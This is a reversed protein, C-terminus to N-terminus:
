CSSGIQRCVEGVWPGPGANNVARVYYNGASGDPEAGSNQVGTTCCPVTNGPVCADCTNGFTFELDTNPLYTAYVTQHVLDNSTEYYLIPGNPQSPPPLWYIYVLGISSSTNLATITCGSPASGSYFPTIPMNGGPTSSLGAKNVARAELYWSQTAPVPVSALVETSSGLPQPINDLILYTSSSGSISTTSTAPGGWVQYVITNLDTCGSAYGADDCISIATWSLQITGAVAVNQSRGFSKPVSPSGVTWGRPAATISSWNSLIGEGMNNVGAVQFKYQHGDQMFVQGNSTFDNAFEITAIGSAVGYGNYYTGSSWSYSNPTTLDMLVGSYSIIDQGMSSPVPWQFTLKAPNFSSAIITPAVITAPVGASTVAITPSKPGEGVDNIATMQILYTQGTLLGTLTCSQPAPSSSMGCSSDPYQSIPGGDGNNRYVNFGVCTGGNMSPVQWSLAITTTTSLYPQQYISSASMQSPLGAVKYFAWPSDTWGRTNYARLRFGYIQGGILNSTFTQQLVNGNRLLQFDLPDNANGGINPTAESVANGNTPDQQYVRYGTIACGMDAPPSWKLTISTIGGGAWAPASPTAPNGCSWQTTTPSLPSEGVGTVVSVQALYPLGPALGTATYSVMSTDYISARYTVTGGLGNNMYIKYGLLPAAYTNGAAFSFTASSSMGTAASSTGTVSTVSPADPQLSCFIRSIGSYTGEGAGTVAVVKFYVYQQVLNPGVITSCDIAGLQQVGALVEKTPSGPAPWASDAFSNAIYIRWSTIPAGGNSGTFDWGVTLYCKSPVAPPTYPDCFSSIYYANSPPDAPAGVTIALYPYSPSGSVGSTSMPGSGVESVAKVGFRYTLSNTLGAVTYQTQSTSSITVQNFNGDYGDDYYLIYGTLIAYDTDTVPAWSITVSSATGSVKTLGQPAAPVASCRWRFSDSPTGIGAANTGSVRFFAYNKQVNLGGWNAGNTCDVSQTTGTTLTYQPNAASTWTIGDVSTYVLWGTIPSGGDYGATWALTIYSETSNVAYVNPPDPTAASFFTAMPSYQSPGVESIAQVKFRYALGPSLGYKTFSLQTTDTILDTSWAGGPGEDTYVQWGTLYAAHLQSVSLSFSITVSNATSSVRVPAAPTDPVSSCRTKLPASFSSMGVSNVATMKLWIYQQTVSGLPGSGTCIVTYNGFQAPLTTALSPPYNTGDSSLYANWSVIGSGGTSGLEQVTYTISADSTSVVSPVPADPVSAAVASLIPSPLSVGTESLTSIIFRYTLGATLGSLTYEVQLSDTLTVTTFPGGAGDDYQVQTGAPLANHLASSSPMPWTITIFALSSSLVTPAAPQDPVSSCRAVLADSLTGIGALSEGAVKIWMMQQSMTACNIGYSVTDVSLIQYSPTVPWNDGDASVYIVWATVDSGGNSGPFMWAVTIVLDTSNTVYVPSPAAPPSAAVVPGAIQSNVSCGVTSCLKLMVSYFHGTVIGSTFTYQTATTDYVPAEEFIYESSSTDDVLIRWGTHAAGNLQGSSPVFLEITLTSATAQLSPATPTLPPAACYMGVPTSPSGEGSPGGVGNVATIMFYFMQQTGCSYTFTSVSADSTSGAYVYHNGGDSSVKINYKQLPVGGSDQGVYSWGLTIATSSSAIIYPASPAEALNGCLLDLRSTYLGCMNLNCGRVQFRYTHGTVLSVGPSASKMAPLSTITETESMITQDNWLVEYRVIPGDHAGVRAPANWSVVISQLTSASYSFNSPPNPAPSAVFSYVGSLTGWGNANRAVVQYNYTWGANLGNKYNQTLPGDYLVSSISGAGNGNDYWLQYELIPLGPITQWSVTISNSDAAIAQMANAGFVPPSGAIMMLGNTPYGVVCGDVACVYVQFTYSQLTSLGTQTISTVTPGVEQVLSYVNVGQKMFLQYGTILANACGTNNPPTWSLVVSTDTFGSATFSAVPNPLACSQTRYVPSAPSLGVANQAYIVFRYYTGSVLSSIQDAFITRGYSRNNTFDSYNGSDYSLFYGTIPSGGDSAPASWTLAVTTATRVQTLDRQLVSMQSPVVGGPVLAISSRPSEGAANLATVAMQYTLGGSLGTVTFSTVDPLGMGNWLMVNVNDNAGNDRYLRYGLLPVGGDSSPPSWSVVFGTASRTGQNVSLVPPASPLAAAYFSGTVFNPVLDTLADTSLARNVAAVQITYYYGTTLGTVTYTTTTPEDVGSTADVFSSGGLGDNRMVMYSTIPSGGNDTPASWTLTISQATSNANALNTPAAPAAASIVHLINSPTGAFSSSALTKWNEAQVTFYYDLDNSSPVFDFATDLVSPTTGAQSLSSPSAGANIIYGLIPCDGTDIPPNWGLRILAASRTLVQLNTVASPNNCPAVVLPAPTGAGKVTVAM